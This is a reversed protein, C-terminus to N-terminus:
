SCSWSLASRRTLAHRGLVDLPERDDRSERTRAPGLDRMGQLIEPEEDDVVQRRRQQRLHGLERHPGPRRAPDRDHDVSAATDEEPLQGLRELLETLVMAVRPDHEKLCGVLVEHAPVLRGAAPVGQRRGVAHHLPDALFSLDKRLQAALRVQHDIGGPQRGV